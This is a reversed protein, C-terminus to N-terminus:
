HSALLGRTHIATFQGWFQAHHYERINWGASISFRITGNLEENLDFVLRCTIRVNGCKRSKYNKERKRSVSMHARDRYVEVRSAAAEAICGGKDNGIKAPQMAAWLNLGTTLPHSCKYQNPAAIHSYLRMCAHVRAVAAPNLKSAEHAPLGKLRGEILPSASHVVSIFPAPQQLYVMDRIYRNFSVARWM